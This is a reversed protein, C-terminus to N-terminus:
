FVVKFNTIKGHDNRIRVRSRQGSGMLIGQLIGGLQRYRDLEMHKLFSKKKQNQLRVTKM